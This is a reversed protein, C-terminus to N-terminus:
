RRRKPKVKVGRKKTKSNEFEDLAKFRLKARVKKSRLAKTAKRRVKKSLRLKLKQTVDAALDVNTEALKLSKQAKKGEGRSKIALKGKGVLECDEDCTAKAKIAKGIKQRKRAKVRLGPPDLDVAMRARAAGSGNCSVTQGTFIQATSCGENDTVTLTATYVGKKAYKHGVTPDDGGGSGMASTKGDGFDWAWETVTGDPDTSGTGDFRVRKPKKRRAVTFRATPGQDPTIALGSPGDIGSAFPSGSIAALSAGDGTEFGAVRDPGFLGAYLFSGNPTVALSGPFNGGTATPTGVTSVAGAASIALTSVNASNSNSAYLHNGSPTVALRTPDTGGTDVPAGLSALAGSAAVSFASVSQGDANATYLNRGSPRIAIASPENAGTPTPAGVATPAGNAGIAFRTVDHSGQNSAYLHRGDPAVAVGSVNNGGSSVPAGVASLRGNAAIAFTSVEASNTQGVYLHGGDPAVALSTPADGGSPMPAGISSLTGTADIAFGTVSDSGENVVYLRRSDPTIAIAGATMGGTGVPSGLPSLAGNAAIDFAAVDNTINGSVYVNRKAHVSAPLVLVLLAAALAGFAV